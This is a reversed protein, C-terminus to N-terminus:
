AALRRAPDAIDDIHALVSEVLDPSVETIGHDRRAHAAVQGLIREEDPASFVADCGPVVAGCAFLKM